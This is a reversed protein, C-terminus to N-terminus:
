SGFKETHNQSFISIDATNLPLLNKNSALSPVFQPVLAIFFTGWSCFFVCQPVIHTQPTGSLPV